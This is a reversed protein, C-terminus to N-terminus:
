RRRASHRFSATYRDNDSIRFRDIGTFFETSACSPVAQNLEAQSVPLKLRHHSPLRSRLLEEIPEPDFIVDGGIMQQALDVPAQIEIAQPWREGRKVTM